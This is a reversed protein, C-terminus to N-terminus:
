LGRLMERTGDPGTVELAIPGAGPEISIQFRLFSCCVQERGIVSALESLLGPSHPFDFKLGNPLDTIKEARQFLGPLLDQRQKQLEDPSLLCTVESTTATKSMQKEETRNSGATQNYIATTVAGAFVALLAVVTATTKTM